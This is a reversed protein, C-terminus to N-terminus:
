GVVAHQPTREKRNIRQYKGAALVLAAAVDDRATNGAGMKVLRTGGADDNKVRAVSLSAALLPRSEEEAAFPGDRTLSRLSKIDESSESWRTARPAIPVQGAVAQTLQSLQFRDCVIGVPLGWRDRIADWLMTPPPVMFEDAVILLGKQALAVYTGPPVRDRKEQEDLGPIGPALAMAEIRGGEFIAVAASWARGAGLDVSVIPRGKRAPVERFMLKLDDVTLLLESEDATPVNLRFSLFRAKLRSDARAEDREELLKRRFNADIATLPNCRRIEPWQDWRAPQGQLSQVYVSGHSGRQILDHWWGSSAPALTGIYIVKLPSGPKGMATTIADFMLSGGTVEWSGPEDAVLLPCGVIGMATKGNSSLIRLRTFSKLHTIGIRTASDIFRYGGKPELNARIFRYVLRAQEISGACLLYESGAVHLSDEPTLCRELLHAALWSKGNGRPLSLAATDIGPDLARRIFQKQFPRLNM